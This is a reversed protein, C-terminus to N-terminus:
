VVSIEPGWVAPHVPTPLHQLVPFNETLSPNLSVGKPSSTWSCLYEVVCVHVCVYVCAHVCVRMCVRVCVRVCVHGGM